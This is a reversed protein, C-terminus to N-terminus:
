VQYAARVSSDAKVHEVAMDYARSGHEGLREPTLNAALVSQAMAFATITVSSVATLGGFHQRALVYAVAPDMPEESPESPLEVKLKKLLPVYKANATDKQLTYVAWGAVQACVQRDGSGGPTALQEGEDIVAPAAKANATVFAEFVAKWLWYFATRLNTPPTDHAAALQDALERRATSGNAQMRVALNADSAQSATFDEVGNGYAVHLKARCLDAFDLVADAPPEALLPAFAEAYEAKGATLARSQERLVILVAPISATSGEGLGSPPLRRTALAAAREMEKLRQREEAEARKREEAEAKRQAALRAKEAKKAELEKAKQEARVARQEEAADLRQRKRAAMLEAKEAKRKAAAERKAAAAEEQAALKAAVAAAKKSAGAAAAKTSTGAAAGAAATPQKRKRGTAGAAPAAAPRVAKAHGRKAPQGAGAASTAGDLVPETAAVEATTPAVASAVDGASAAPQKRKKGVAAPAVAPRVAKARGRQAPASAHADAAAEELSRALPAAKRKGPATTRGRSGSGQVDGRGTVKAVGRAVGPRRRHRAHLSSGM